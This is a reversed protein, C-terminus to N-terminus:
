GPSMVHFGRAQFNMLADRYLEENAFLMKESGEAPKLSVTRKAMDVWLVYKETGMKVGGM